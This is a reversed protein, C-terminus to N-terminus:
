PAGSPKVAKVAMPPRSSTQPMKGDKSGGEDGQLGRVHHFFQQKKHTVAAALWCWASTSLCQTWHNLIVHREFLAESTKRHCNRSSPLPLRTHPCCAPIVEMDALQEADKDSVVFRMLKGVESRLQLLQGAVDGHFAEQRVPIGCCSSSGHSSITAELMDLTESLLHLVLSGSLSHVGGVYPTLITIDGAKYGQQTLYLALRAAMGAETSNQKSANEDKGGEPNNHNWFYVDHRMGKVKPYVEVCPHDQLSDTTGFEAMMCEAVCPVAHMAENPLLASCHTLAVCQQQNM